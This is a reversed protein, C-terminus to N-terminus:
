KQRSMQVIPEPQSRPTKEAAARSSGSHRRPQNMMTPESGITTIPTVSSSRMSRSNRFRQTMPVVKITSPM